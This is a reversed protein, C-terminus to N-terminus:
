SGNVGLSRSTVNSITAYAELLAPVVFPSRCEREVDKLLDEAEVRRKMEVRLSEELEARRKQEDELQREFEKCRSREKEVDSRLGTQILREQTIAINM